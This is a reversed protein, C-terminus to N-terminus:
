TTDVLRSNESTTNITVLRINEDNYKSFKDYFNAHAIFMRKCCYRNINLQECITNFPVKNTHMEEFKDWLDGIIKNCSFCRPPSNM